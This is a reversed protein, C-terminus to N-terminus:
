PAGTDFTTFGAEAYAAATEDFTEFVESGHGGALTWCGNIIPSFKDGSTQFAARADNQVMSRTHLDRASAYSGRSASLPSGNKRLVATRM